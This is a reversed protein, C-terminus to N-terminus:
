RRSTRWRTASRGFRRTAQAPTTRSRSSSSDVTSARGPLRVAAAAIPAEGPPQRGLRVGAAQGVTRPLGTYVESLFHDNEVSQVGRLLALRDM